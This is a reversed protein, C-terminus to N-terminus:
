TTAIAGLRPPAGLPIADTPVSREFAESVVFINLPRVFRWALFGALAVLGLGIILAKAGRPSMMPM